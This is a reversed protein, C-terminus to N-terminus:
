IGIMAVRRIRKECNKMGNSKGRAELLTSWGV